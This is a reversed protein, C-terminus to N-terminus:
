CRTAYAVVNTCVYREVYREVKDASTVGSKYVIIDRIAEKTPGPVDCSKIFEKDEVDLNFDKVANFGNPYIKYINKLSLSAM